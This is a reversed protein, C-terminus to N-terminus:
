NENKCLRRFFITRSKFAETFRRKHLPHCDDKPKTFKTTITISYRFENFGKKSVEM